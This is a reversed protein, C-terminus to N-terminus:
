HFQYADLKGMSDYETLPEFYADVRTYFSLYVHCSIPCDQFDRKGMLLLFPIPNNLTIVHGTTVPGAASVTTRPNTM